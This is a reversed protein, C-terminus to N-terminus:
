VGRLLIRFAQLEKPLQRRRARVVAHPTEDEVDLAKEPETHPAVIPRAAQKPRQQLRGLGVADLIICATAASLPAPRPRSCQPSYCGDLCFFAGGLLGAPRLIGAWPSTTSLDVGQPVARCTLACVVSTVRPRCVLLLVWACLPRATQFDAGHKALPHRVRPWTRASAKPHCAPEPRGACTRAVSMQFSCRGRQFFCVFFSVALFLFLAALCRIPAAVAVAIRSLRVGLFLRGVKGSSLCSVFLWGRLRPALLSAAFLLACCRLRSLKECAFGAWCAFRTAGFIFFCAAKGKSVASGRSISECASAFCHLAQGSSEVCRGWSAGARCARAAALVVAICSAAGHASQQRFDLALMLVGSLGGLDHRALIKSGAFHPGVLYPRPPAALELLSQPRSRPRSLLRSAPRSVPPRSPPAAIWGSGSSAALFLVRRAQLYQRRHARALPQRPPHKQM